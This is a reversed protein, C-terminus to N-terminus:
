QLHSWAEDEEPRNWDEALATESLVATESARDAPGEDRCSPGSAGNASLSRAPGSIRAMLRSCMSRSSTRGTAGSCCGVSCRGDMPRWACSRATWCRLTLGSRMPSRKRFSRFNATSTSAGLSSTGHHGDIQALARFGDHKLEFPWNPHDFADAVRILPM